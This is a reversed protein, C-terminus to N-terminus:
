AGNEKSHRNLADAMGTIDDRMHLTQIWDLPISGLGYLAGALQGTIAATTDADDGLNVAELVASKFDSTNHICWLAAELSAIAYGSSIIESRIKGKYSGNALRIVKPEQFPMDSIDLLAEKTAGGLARSILAALLQCCEVAEPAGHTTRSSQAAYRIVLDQNPHFFMAIPALRMLSGNGATNADVDGAMPNGTNMFRVLADRVTMGIDFCEGTSSWYGWQWWNVYRGMQDHADFGSKTCLSEALCLAMSTDDTWYGPKLSFPGGGRMGTVPPFTGRTSFEVSTGLADGCALGLLCGRYRDEQTVCIQDDQLKV